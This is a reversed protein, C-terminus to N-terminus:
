TGRGIEQSVDQSANSLCENKRRMGFIKYFEDLSDKEECRINCYRAAMFVEAAREKSKRREFMRAAATGLSMPESSSLVELERLRSEEPLRM